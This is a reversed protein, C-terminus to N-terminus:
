KEEGGEPTFIAFGELSDGTEKFAILCEKVWTIQQGKLLAQSVIKM